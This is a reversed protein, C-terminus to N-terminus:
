RLLIRQIEDWNWDKPRGTWWGEVLNLNVLISKGVMEEIRVGDFIILYEGAFQHVRVAIKVRGGHRIRDIIWGIQEPKLDIIGKDTKKFEIWGEIGDICFNSDPVGMGTDGTEISVWHIKPLHKKFLKRLQGDIM